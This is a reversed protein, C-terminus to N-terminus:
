NYIIVKSNIFRILIKFGVFSAPLIVRIELNPASKTSLPKGFSILVIFFSPNFTIQDHSGQWPLVM